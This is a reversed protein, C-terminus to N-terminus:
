NPTTGIPQRQSEIPQQDPHNWTCYTFEEGSLGYCSRHSEGPNSSLQSSAPPMYEDSQQALASGAGAVALAAAAALRLLKFKGNTM